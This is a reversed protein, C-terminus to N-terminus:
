GKTIIKKTIIQSLKIKKLRRKECGVIIDISYMM